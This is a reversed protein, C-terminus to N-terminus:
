GCPELEGLLNSQYVLMLDGGQRKTVKSITASAEMGPKQAYSGSCASILLLAISMTSSHKM